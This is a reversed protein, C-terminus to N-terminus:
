KYSLIVSCKNELRWTCGSINFIQDRYQDLAIHLNSSSDRGEFIAVVFTNEPANPTSVNGVQFSMKFTGGGKDGGIKVRVESEPLVNEHWTLRNARCYM